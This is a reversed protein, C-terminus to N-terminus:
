IDPTIKIVRMIVIILPKRPSESPISDALLAPSGPEIGPDPVDGPPLCPLGSWDEQRSVGMSLPAQHAVTWPTVFLGVPSLVVLM